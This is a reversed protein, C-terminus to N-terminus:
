QLPAVTSDSSAQYHLRCRQEGHWLVRYRLFHKDCFEKETMAVGTHGYYHAPVFTAINM